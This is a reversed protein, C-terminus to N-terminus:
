KSLFVDYELHPNASRQTFLLCICFRTSLVIGVTNCLHFFICAHLLVFCIQSNHSFCFNKLHCNCCCAPDSCQIWLELNFFVTAGFYLSSINTPVQDGMDHMILIPSVYYGQNCLFLDNTRHYFVFKTSLGLGKDHQYPLFNCM